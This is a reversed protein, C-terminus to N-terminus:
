CFILCFNRWGLFNLSQGSDHRENAYEERIQCYEARIDEFENIIERMKLMSIDNSDLMSPQGFSPLPPSPIHFEEM